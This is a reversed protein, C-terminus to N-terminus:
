VTSCGCHTMRRAHVFSLSAEWVQMSLLSSVSISPCQEDLLGAAVPRGVTAMALGAAEHEHLVNGSSAALCSLAARAQDRCDDILRRRQRLAVAAIFFLLLEPASGAAQYDERGGLSSLNKDFSGWQGGVCGLETV